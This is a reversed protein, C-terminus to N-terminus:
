DIRGRALTQCLQTPGILVVSSVDVEQPRQRARGVGVGRQTRQNPQLLVGVGSPVLEGRSQEGIAAQAPPQEGHETRRQRQTIVQDGM